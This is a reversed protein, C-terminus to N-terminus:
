KVKKMQRRAWRRADETEWELYRPIESALVAQYYKLAQEKNGNERHSEALELLAEPDRPALEVGKLAHELAKGDDGWSVVSPLERYAMALFIHAEARGPNRSILEELQTRVPKVAKFIRTLSLTAGSKYRNMLEWYRGDYDGPRIAQARMACEIGANAIRACGKKDGAQVRRHALHFSTRACWVQVDHDGAREGALRVFGEWAAWHRDLNARGEYAELVKQFEADGPVGPGAAWALSAPVLALLALLVLLLRGTSSCVDIAKTKVYM